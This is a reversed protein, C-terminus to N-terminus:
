VEKKKKSKKFFMITLVIYFLGTVIWAYPLGKKGEVFYHNSLIFSLVSNLFFLIANIKDPHGFVFKLAVLNVFGILISVYGLIKYDFSLADFGSLILVFGTLILPLKYVFFDKRKM